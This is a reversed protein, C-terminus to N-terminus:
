SQIFTYGSDNLFMNFHPRPCGWFPRPPWIELILTNKVIAISHFPIPWELQVSTMKAQFILCNKRWLIMLFIADKLHTHPQLLQALFCGLFQNDMFFDWRSQIGFIYPKQKSYLKTRFHQNSTLCIPNLCGTSALYKESSGTNWIYCNSCFKMLFQLLKLFLNFMSVWFLNCAPPINLFLIFM